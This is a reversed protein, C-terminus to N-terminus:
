PLCTGPWPAAAVALQQHRNGAPLGRPRSRPGHPSRPHCGTRVLGGHDQAPRRRRARGAPTSGTSWALGPSALNPPLCRPRRWIPRPRAPVPRHPLWPLPQAQLFREQSRWQDAQRWQGASRSPTGSIGPPCSRCPRICGAGHQPCFWSSPPGIREPRSHSRPLTPSPWGSATSRWTMCRAGPLAPCTIPFSWRPAPLPAPRLPRPCRSSVGCFPRRNKQPPWASSRLTSNGTPPADAHVSKAAAGSHAQPTQPCIVPWRPSTTTTPAASSSGPCPRHRRGPCCHSLFGLRAQEATDKDDLAQVADIKLVCRSTKTASRSRRPLPPTGRREAPGAGARARRSSLGSGGNRAPQRDSHAAAGAGRQGHRQAASARRGQAALWPRSRRTSALARRWGARREAQTRKWRASGTEALIRGNAEWGASSGRGPM